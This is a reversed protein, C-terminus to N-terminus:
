INNKMLFQILDALNKSGTKQNINRRHTKVTLDSIFLERSIEKNTYGQAILRMIEIERTTLFEPKTNTNNEVSPIRKEEAPFFKNGACAQQVGEVLRAPDETKDIYADFGAEQLKKMVNPAATYAVLKCGPYRQKLKEAVAFGDMAGPLSLDLVAVDPISPLSHRLLFEGDAFDGIVDFFSDMMLYDRIGKRVIPHDDVLLVKCKMINM